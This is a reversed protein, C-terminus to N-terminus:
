KSLLRSAYPKLASLIEKSMFFITWLDLFTAFCNDDPTECKSFFFLTVTMIPDAERFLFDPSSNLM